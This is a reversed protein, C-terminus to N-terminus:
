DVADLAQAGPYSASLEGAAALYNETKPNPKVASSIGPEPPAPPPVYGPRTVLERHQFWEFMNNQADLTPKMAKWFGDVMRDM